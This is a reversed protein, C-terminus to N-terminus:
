EKLVQGSPQEQTLSAKVLDRSRRDLDLVERRIDESQSGQNEKPDPSKGKIKKKPASQCTAM